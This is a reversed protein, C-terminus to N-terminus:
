GPEFALASTVTVDERLSHLVSCYKEKSLEIAREVKGQDDPVGGHVRFALEVRVLRRPHDDARVAEVDVAVARIAVRMRRVIDVVDAAACAAIAILLMTVPTPGDRGDGDVVVAPGGPAGGEFALGEGTWAVRAAAKV